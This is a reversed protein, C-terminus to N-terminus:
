GNGAVFRAARSRSFTQRGSVIAPRAPSPIALRHALAVRPLSVITAVQGECSLFEINLEVLPLGRYSADFNQLDRPRIEIQRPNWSQGANAAKYIAEKLAWVLAVRKAPDRDIWQRELSSFWLRCFGEDAPITSPALDAGILLRDTSALAVLVGHDTHAISLSRVVERGRILVRPRVGHGRADRTLIEIEDGHEACGVECLLRKALWRGAMWQQRRAPDRLREFEQHERDGLRVKSSGIAATVADLTCYRSHFRASLNM